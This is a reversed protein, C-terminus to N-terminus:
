YTFTPWEVLMTLEESQEVSVLAPVHEEALKYNLDAVPLLSPIPIQNLGSDGRRVGPASTCERWCRPKAQSFMQIVFGFTIAIDVSLLM